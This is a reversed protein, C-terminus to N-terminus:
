SIQGLQNVLLQVSTEIQQPKANLIENAFSVDLSSDKPRQAKWKMESMSVPRLFRKDLNLKDAVMEAFDYRSIRTAGATHFTGTIKRTAIDILMQSLNPVYTPSTFQDVLVSINTKSELNEKVWIPFSKKTKHLGFPSSIRAIAYPSALNNLALEGALKSKGYIGLPNPTDYETRMKKMGDFVYDTSVYVFFAHQKAAQRALVKTANANISMALDPQEECQDVGTMAALHIISDPRTENLTSIIDGQSLLDLQIAIGHEPKTDHYSSYVDHNLDVLDKAVQSGVLGSAGTVLFKM